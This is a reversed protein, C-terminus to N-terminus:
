PDGVVRPELWGSVMIRGPAYPEICRAEFRLLEVESMEPIEVELENWFGEDDIFQIRTSFIETEGSDGGREQVSIRYLVEGPPEENGRSDAVLSYGLGFRLVAPSPGLGSLTFSTADGRRAPPLHHITRGYQNRWADMLDKLGPSATGRKLLHSLTKLLNEREPSTMPNGATRTVLTQPHPSEGVPRSGGERLEIEADVVDARSFVEILIEEEPQPRKQFLLITRSGDPFVAALEYGNRFRADRWLKVDALIGGCLCKTVKKFIFFDPEQEFVYDPDSRAGITGPLHAIHWDVLGVTDITRLRSYYPVIGVESTVLTEDPTANEMLWAAAAHLGMPLGPTQSHPRRDQSFFERLGSVTKEAFTLRSVYTGGPPIMSFYTQVILTAILGGVLWGNPSDDERRDSCRCESVWFLLVLLGLPVVPFLYRLFARYPDGHGGYAGFVLFGVVLPILVLVRQKKILAIVSVLALAALVPWYTTLFFTVYPMSWRFNELISFGTKAAVSNPTLTGFYAYRFVLFFSFPVGFGAVWLSLDRLPSAGPENRRIAFDYALSSFAAAVGLVLGEPRTLAALLFVIATWGARGGKYLLVAGGLVLASFFPAELGSLINHATQVSFAFCLAAAFRLSRPTNKPALLLISIMMAASGLNLLRAALPPTLGLSKGVALVVVLLFNSFGEVREGVNFVLGHGEALQSAYRFSIYADDAPFWPTNRFGVNLVLVTLVLFLLGILVPKFGPFLGSGRQQLIHDQLRTL